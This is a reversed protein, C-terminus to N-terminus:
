HLARAEVLWTRLENYIAAMAYGVTPQHVESVGRALLAQAQGMRGQIVRLRALLACWLRRVEPSLERAVFFTVEAQADAWEVQLRAWDRRLAQQEVLVDDSASPRFVPFGALAPGRGRLAEWADRMRERLSM